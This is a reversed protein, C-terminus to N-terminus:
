VIKNLFDAMNTGTPIELKKRLRYRSIEVGRVSINMLQAIEKTSLNLKLYTCVKIDTNSLKPFKEKLKKLYDDNVEDFHTAFQEWNSNNKEVNKLLTLAKKIDHDFESKKYLRELEEKVKVLANNREELHIAADALEKSKFKVEGTLRENQLKIIEKERKDLKLQHLEKLRRQEEEFRLQQMAFKKKQWLYLLYILFAAIIFYILRAWVTSYWAPRVEFAYTLVKSENGLNDRAKIKFVYEGYPLNTYDKETRTSWDSWGADYGSLQYSYEINNQLGYAPSSYEFHFSNFRNPLHAIENKGQVYSSDSVSQFYGGFLLSDKDSFTEVKGLLVSVTYHKDAYKDFNLHIIGKESSILINEKNFPYINEFGSLIEGTLEPFYIIKFPKSPNTKDFAAVGIKKGSCFWINGDEDEHLYRIETNRFIHNLVSSSVFRHTAKDYEYIGNVTAFVIRSRIKFVYNELTSPLGDKETFLKTTYSKGDPSLTIRYIGRYPHSAWIEGKDDIAMFRFSESLGNLRGEYYFEGNRYGLKQLGTYTGVLVTQSPFANSVPVFLWCGYGRFIPDAEMKNILFTGDNHGILLKQNVEDIKWVEGSTNKIPDFNGKAFSYDKNLGSIPAVYAGDSTGIYLNHNFIIGSYGPLENKKDPKIYKVPSSYAIFSIGNNLGAWINQDKDIFVCLVNNNQLGENTTIKQILNGNQDFVICGGSTTGAVFENKGIYAMSNIHDTLELENERGLESLSNKRLYFLGNKKTSLIFSDMGTNVMGSLDVRSFNHLTLPYWSENRYEFIGEIRDQGFLRGGSKVMFQWGSKPLHVKIKNDRYEFIRDSTQFFVANHFIEIQWVDSFTSQHEPMLSVLSTYHLVGRSDPSFYGLEGQGGVYIRRNVDVALSRMITKHPLPYVKWYAGDYTVLGENNAFYMVGMKDQGIDWTQSGGHFDNKSFNIIQPLGLTNQAFSVPFDLYFFLM